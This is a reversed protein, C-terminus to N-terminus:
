KDIRSNHKQWFKNSGDFIVIKLARMSSSSLTNKFVRNIDKEFEKLEMVLKQIAHQPSPNLMLREERLKLLTLRAVFGIEDKLWQDRMGSATALLHKASAAIRNQIQRKRKKDHDEMGQLEEMMKQYKDEAIM